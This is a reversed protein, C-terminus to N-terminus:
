KSDNRAWGNVTGADRGLAVEGGRVIRGVHGPDPVRQEAAEGSLAEGDDGALEATAVGGAGCRGLVVLEPFVREDGVQDVLSRRAAEVPNEVGVGSVGATDEAVVPAGPVVVLEEEQLAQHVLRLDSM